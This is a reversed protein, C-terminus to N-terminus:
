SVTNSHTSNLVVYHVRHILEPNKTCQVVGSCQSWETTVHFFKWQIGGQGLHQNHRSFHSAASLYQYTNTKTLVDSSIYFFIVNGTKKVKDGTHMSPNEGFKQKQHMKPCLCVKCILLYINYNPSNIYVTELFFVTGTNNKSYNRSVNASKFSKQRPVDRLFKVYIINTKGVESKYQQQVVKHFASTTTQGNVVILEYQYHM